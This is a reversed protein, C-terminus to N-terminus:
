IFGDGWGEGRCLSVYCDGRTHLARMFNENKIEDILTIKPTEKFGNLQSAVTKRVSPYTNGFKRLFINRPRTRDIKSTKIILEVDDKSSFAKLYAEILKAVAKRETWESIIYFLFNKDSFHYQDVNAAKLGCFESLHPLVDIPIEIGSEKFVSKNWETPVLLRDLNNIINIWHAPLKTTEWVTYGILYKNKERENWYPYYEPVLHVLVADYDM